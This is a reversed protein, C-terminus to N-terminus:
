FGDLWDELSQKKSSGGQTTGVQLLAAVVTPMVIHQSDCSLSLIDMMKPAAAPAPCAPERGLALSMSVTILCARSGCAGIATLSTVCGTQALGAPPQM